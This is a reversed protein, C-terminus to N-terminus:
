YYQMVDWIGDATNEALKMIISLPTNQLIEYNIKAIKYDKAVIGKISIDGIEKHKQHIGKGIKIGGQKIYIKGIEEKKALAADIAIICPNQCTKQITELTKYINTACVPSELDGFVLINRIFNKDKLKQKLQIRCSSWFM